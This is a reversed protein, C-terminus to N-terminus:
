DSKGKSAKDKQRLIQFIKIAKQNFFLVNLLIIINIFYFKVNNVRIPFKEKLFVQM